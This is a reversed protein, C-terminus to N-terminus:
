TIGALPLWVGVFRRGCTCNSLGTLGSLRPAIVSFCPPAVTGKAALRLAPPLITVSVGFERSVGPRGYVRDIEPTDSTDPFTIDPVTALANLVSEPM